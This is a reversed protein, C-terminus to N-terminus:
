TKEKSSKARRRAQTLLARKYEGMLMFHGQALKEKFWADAQEETCTVVGQWKKSGSSGVLKFETAGTALAAAAIRYLARM